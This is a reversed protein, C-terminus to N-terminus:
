GRVRRAGESPTVEFIEPPVFGATAFATEVALRVAPVSPMPTLAIASGGFGGGTMRAGLAGAAQAADVAVDLEPASIEFDDRMSVHSADLLSGIGAPNGARLQEVVALVRTNETVIHRARRAVLGDLEAEVRELTADRLAPVGLRRAAEECSARREAYAGEVLAHKARTDIVLLALDAAALDLPVQEVALTRCDLFMASGAQGCLAAMQDMVGTPAGVVENEARRCAGALTPRDVAAGALDAVALAVAGELAASSSVGAGTPVDSDIGVDVGPVAIGQERLAWLVGLAYASWGSVAGPAIAAVAIEPPDAESTSFLRALGDDRVGVAAMTTVDLAIPLVFGDNYDTHEGILNVRGPAMWIGDPARGYRETFIDAM